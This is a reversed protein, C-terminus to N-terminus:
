RNSFEPASRQLRVIPAPRIITANPFAALVAQEGAAKTRLQKSPANPGAGASLLSALHLLGPM